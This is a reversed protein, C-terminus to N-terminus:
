RGAPRLDAPTLQETLLRKFRAPDGDVWTKCVEYGDEYTTVYSRWMPDAIFKMAQSARRDSMLARDKLYELAKDETAGDEYLMMAANDSARALPRRVAKVARALDADYDIGHRGLVEAAFADENELVMSFALGAIGEAILSEPTGIMLISAESRGGERYLLQEKWAHETQHGPYLEHAMLETLFNTAMPVDTNVAIRSRLSGEYYNYASWPEDSVLELEYSEGDPLGVLEHTRARLEEVIDSLVSGLRDKPVTQAERWHQYRGALSGAGPLAADLGAHAADIEDEPTRRPRVGYCREVEDAFAFEEGALKRAVTELGVLQAHLWRRRQAELGDLEAVLRAADEALSAPDSLAEADIREQVAPDGFYADVLGDVHRGLRLCLEVYREDVSV